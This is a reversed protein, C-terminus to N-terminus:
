AKLQRELYEKLAVANNHETERASYLLTVNGERAIGLIDQWSQPKADLEASYRRRFEDWKAPDHAFWKRLTDSPAVDKLWSDLKLSDRKTGRPWIRDVLFRAGDDPEPPEYVRKIKVM